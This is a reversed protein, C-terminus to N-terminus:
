QLLFPHNHTIDSLDGQIYYVYKDDLMKPATYGSDTPGPPICGRECIVCTYYSIIASYSHLCAMRIMKIEINM